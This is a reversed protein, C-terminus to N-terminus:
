RGSWNPKEGANFARHFEAHDRSQMLHAQTMAELELAGHLTMDAERTLLMKTTQYALKEDYQAQWHLQDIMSNVFGVNLAGKRAYHEANGLWYTYAPPLGLRRLRQLAVAAAETEPASDPLQRAEM